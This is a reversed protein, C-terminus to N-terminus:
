IPLFIAFHFPAERAMSASRGHPPRPMRSVNRRIDLQETSMLAGCPPAFNRLRLLKGRRSVDANGSVIRADANESLNRSSAKVRKSRSGSKPGHHQRFWEPLL